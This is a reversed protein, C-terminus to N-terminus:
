TLNRFFRDFFLDPNVSLAIEHLGPQDGPKDARWYTMGSVGCEATEVRARGHEYTCITRELRGVAALPDHFTTTDHTEFYLEALDRVVALSPVAFRDMTETKGLFVKRTVDLGYLELRLDNQSLVISAAHPDLLSNWEVYPMASDSFTYRGIMMVVSELLRACEPDSRFLLAINTLPGIALLTVEGPHERIATRLFEVAGGIPIDTKHKWNKLRAAQPAMPQRQPVMLPDPSGAIIPVDAGAHRCIADAIRARAATDGTVTTIGILEITPEHLLFALCQADDIDSGIDTDLLLKM